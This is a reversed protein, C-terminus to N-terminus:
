LQITEKEIPKFAFVQEGNIHGREQIQFNVKILMDEGPHLDLDNLISVVLNKKYILKTNPYAKSGKIEYANETKPDPVIYLMGHTKSSGISVRDIDEFGAHYIKLIYNAVKKTKKYVIVVDGKPNRSYGGKGVTPDHFKIDDFLQTEKTM